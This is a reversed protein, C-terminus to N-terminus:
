EDSGSGSGSGGEGYYYGNSNYWLYAKNASPSAPASTPIAMSGTVSIDLFTKLGEIYQNSTLDVYDTITGGGGSGIPAFNETVWSKLAYDALITSLTGSSGAFTALADAILTNIQSTTSYSSADSLDSVAGPISLSLVANTDNPDYTLVTENNVKVTLKALAEELWGQVTTLIGQEATQARTTEGAIDGEATSVRSTLSSISAGQSNISSTHGAITVGQAATLTQLAAILTELTEIQAAYTKANDISGSSTAFLTGVKRKRSDWLTSAFLKIGEGLKVSYEQQFDVHATESYWEALCGSILLNRLIGDASLINGESLDRTTDAYATITVSTSDTATTLHQQPLASTILPLTADLWNALYAQEGDTIIYMDSLDTGEKSVIQQAKHASTRKLDEFLASKGFTFIIKRNTTDITYM